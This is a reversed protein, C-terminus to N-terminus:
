PPKARPREPSRYGLSNVAVQKGLVVASAGERPAVNLYPHRRYLRATNARADHLQEALTPLWRGTRLRRAIRLSAEFALLVLLALAAIVAADRVFRRVTAM